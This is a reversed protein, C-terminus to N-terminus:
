LRLGVYRNQGYIDLNSLNYWDRTKWHAPPSYCIVRFNDGNNSDWFELGLVKYCIAFELKCDQILTTPLGIEFSFADTFGTNSGPVYQASVDSFSTWGDITYRVTIAKEYALNRVKVTGFVSFDRLVINELSVYQSNLNENFDRRAIPQTFNLLRGKKDFDYSPKRRERCRASPVPQPLVVVSVLSHGVSDAFHVKRGKKLFGSHSKSSSDVVCSKPCQTPPM